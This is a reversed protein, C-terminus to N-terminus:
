GGASKTKETFLHALRALHCWKLVSAPALELQCRGGPGVVFFFFCGHAMLPVYVLSLLTFWSNFLFDKEGAASRTFDRERNHGCRPM